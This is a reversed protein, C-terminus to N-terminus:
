GVGLLSYVGLDALSSAGKKEVVMWHYYLAVRDFKPESLISAAVCETGHCIRCVVVRCFDPTGMEEVAFSVPVDDELLVLHNPVM